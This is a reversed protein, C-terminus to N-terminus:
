LNVQLFLFICILKLFSFNEKWVLSCLVMCYCLLLFVHLSNVIKWMSAFVITGQVFDPNGSLKFFSIARSKGSWTPLYEWM